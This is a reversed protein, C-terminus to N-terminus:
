RKQGWDVMQKLHTPNGLDRLAQADPTLYEPSEPDQSYGANLSSGGEIGFAIDDSLKAMGCMDVIAAFTRPALKNAM